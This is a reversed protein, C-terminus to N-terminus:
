VVRRRSRQRPSPVWSRRWSPYGFVEAFRPVVREVLEEISVRRGALDSVSAVPRDGIGCPVIHRFYDLDVSVNLAFGHMTVRRASRV